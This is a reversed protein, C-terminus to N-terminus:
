GLLAGSLVLLMKADVAVGAARRKAVFSALQEHTVLHVEIREDGVGGGDGIKSLGHARVLTF